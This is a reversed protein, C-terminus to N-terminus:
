SILGRLKDAVRTNADAAEEAKTRIAILRDVEADVDVVLADQEAAAADLEQVAKEFGALAAGTRHNSSVLRQGFTRPKKKVTPKM